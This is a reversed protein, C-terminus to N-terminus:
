SAKRSSVKSRSNGSTMPQSHITQSKANAGTIKGQQQRMPVNPQQSAAATGNNIINIQNRVVISTHANQGHVNNQQQGAGGGLQSNTSSELSQNQLLENRRSVGNAKRPQSTITSSRMHQQHGAM